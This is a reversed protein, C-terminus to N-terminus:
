KNNSQGMSAEPSLCRIVKSVNKKKIKITATQGTFTETKFNIFLYNNIFDIHTKKKNCQIAKKILHLNHKIPSRDVVLGRNLQLWDGFIRRSTVSRECVTVLGFARLLQWDIASLNCFRDGVIQM